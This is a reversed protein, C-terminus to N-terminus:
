VQINLSAPYYNRQFYKMWQYILWSSQITHICIHCEIPSCNLWEYQFSLLLLKVPVIGDDMLLNVLRLRNYKNNECKNRIIYENSCLSNCLLLNNPSTGNM